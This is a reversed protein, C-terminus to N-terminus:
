KFPRLIRLRYRPRLPPHLRLRDSHYTVRPSFFVYSHVAHQFFTFAIRKSSFASGISMQVNIIILSLLFYFHRMAEYRVLAKLDGEGMGLDGCLDVINGVM